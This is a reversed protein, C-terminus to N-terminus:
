GLGTSLLAHRADTFHVLDIAGLVPRLARRFGLAELLWGPHTPLEPRAAVRRVAVRETVGDPVPDPTVLQVRLEPDAAALARALSRSYVGVGGALRAALAIRM